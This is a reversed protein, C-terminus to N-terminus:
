DDSGELLRRLRRRGQSLHVHVTTRTVNMIRAIEETPRDAYDHLIVALRQNPSIERLAAVLHDVPEPLEYSLSLETGSEHRRRQLEGAAIRFAATWLWAKPHEIRDFHAMAQAFAESVADNAVEPDASYGVLARWLMPAQEDYLRDIEDRTEADHVVATYPM